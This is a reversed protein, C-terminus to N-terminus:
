CKGPGPEETSSMASVEIRTKLPLFERDGQVIGYNKWDEAGETSETGLRKFTIVKGSLLTNHTKPSEFDVDMGKVCHITDHSRDDAGSHIM